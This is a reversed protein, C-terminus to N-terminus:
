SDKKRGGSRRKRGTRNGGETKKSKEGGAGRGEIVVEISGTKLKGGGRRKFDTGWRKERGGFAKKKRFKWWKSLKVLSNVESRAGGEFRKQPSLNM